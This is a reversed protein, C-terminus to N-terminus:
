YKMKWVSCDILQLHMEVKNRYALIVKKEHNSLKDIHIQEKIEGNVLANIDISLFNCIKTVNPHINGM